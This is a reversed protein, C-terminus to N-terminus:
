VFESETEQEVTLLKMDITNPTNNLPLKLASALVNEAANTILLGEVEGGLIRINHEELMLRGRRITIPGSLRIKIGPTLNINLVDIPKYEMAEVYQVGDTLTLQLVRKGSGKVM